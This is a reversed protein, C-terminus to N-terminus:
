ILEFTVPEFTLAVADQNLDDRISRAIERARERGEPSDEGLVEVRISPEENGEWVGLTDTVTLADYADSLSDLALTRRAAVAGSRNSDRECPSHLGIYFTTRTTNM